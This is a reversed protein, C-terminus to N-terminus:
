PQWNEKYDEHDVYRLALAPLIVALYEEVLDGQGGHVAHIDLLDQARDIIRRKCALDVLIPDHHEPKWAVDIGKDEGSLTRLKVINREDDDLRSRLFDILSDM